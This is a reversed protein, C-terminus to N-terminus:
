EHDAAEPLERVLAGYRDCFRKSAATALEPVFSLYYQTSLISVHGMYTALMPLKTQLDVGAQYWRLLACVAFSHRYDHVRPVRGDSKRVGSAKMLARLAGYLGAGTYPKERANGNCLLPADARMPLGLERRAALYTQMERDADHSLPLYRSRHFKSERVLLTQAESDYDQLTLRVLERRRLGTTYLLVIALRYVERRLVSHPTPPLAACTQLILTIDRASFIYPRVAEHEAPFCHTDPVFCTPETRQRYLCFNRVIRMRNRRVTPSVHFQRACWDEFLAPTLDEQAREFMFDNLRELTRQEVDFERGLARMLSLYRNISAGLCSTVTKTM